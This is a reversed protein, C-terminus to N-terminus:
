ALSCNQMNAYLKNDTSVLSMGRVPENRWACAELRQAAGSVQDGAVKPLTEAEFAPIM